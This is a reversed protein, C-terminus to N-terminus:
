QLSGGSFLAASSPSPRRPSLRTPIAWPSSMPSLSITASHSMSRRDGSVAAEADVVAPLEQWEVAVHQVADEAEARSAAVIAAVPQGQWHVRDIAMPYQPASKHGQRNSAVGVLPECIRALEAGSFVAVVNECARASEVDLSLIKAHAYPSRVFALHLMRPLVIDGIYRGRGRMLRKSESRPIRLGIAKDQRPSM